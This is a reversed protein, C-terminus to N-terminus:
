QVDCRRRQGSCCVNIPGPRAGNADAHALQKGPLRSRSCQQQWGHRGPGPPQCRTRWGHAAQSRSSTPAATHAARDRRGGGPSCHLRRARGCSCGVHQQRGDTRETRTPSSRAGDANHGTPTPSSRAAVAAPPVTRRRHAAPLFRRPLTLRHITLQRSLVSKGAVCLQRRVCGGYELWEYPLAAPLSRGLPATPATPVTSTLTVNWGRWGYHEAKSLMLAGTTANYSSVQQRTAAYCPSVSLPSKHPECHLRSLYAWYGPLRSPAVVQSAAVFARLLALVPPLATPAAATHLRRSRRQGAIPAPLKSGEQLLRVM